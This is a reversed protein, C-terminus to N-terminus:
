IGYSKTEPRIKKIFELPHKFEEEIPYFAPTQPINLARPSAVISSHALVGKEVARPRGKGNFASVMSISLLFSICM